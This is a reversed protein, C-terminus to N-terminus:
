PVYIGRLYGPIGRLCRSPLRPAVRELSRVAGPPLPVTVRRQEIWVM